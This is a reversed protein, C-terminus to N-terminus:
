GRLLACGRVGDWSGLEVAGDVAAGEGRCDGVEVMGM